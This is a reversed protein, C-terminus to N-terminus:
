TIHHLDWQQYLALRVFWNSYLSQPGSTPLNKKIQDDVSSNGSRRRSLKCYSTGRWVAREKRRPASRQKASAKTWRFLPRRRSQLISSSRGSLLHKRMTRWLVLNLLCQFQNPPWQGVLFSRCCFHVRASAPPVEYIKASKAPLQLVTPSLEEESEVQGHGNQGLVCLRWIINLYWGNKVLDKVIWREYGM